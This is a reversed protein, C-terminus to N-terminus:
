GLDGVVFISSDSESFEIDYWAIRDFAQLYMPYGLTMFLFGCMRDPQPLIFLLNIIDEMM